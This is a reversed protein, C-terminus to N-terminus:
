QERERTLEARVYRGVAGGIWWAMLWNLGILWWPMVLGQVYFCILAPAAGVILTSVLSAVEAADEGASM